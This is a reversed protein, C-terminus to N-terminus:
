GERGGDLRRLRRCIWLERGHARAVTCRRRRTTRAKGMFSTCWSMSRTCCTPWRRVAAWGRSITTPFMTRRTSPQMRLSASSFRSHSLFSDLSDPGLLLGSERPSGGLDVREDEERAASKPRREVASSSGKPRAVLPTSPMAEERGGSRM